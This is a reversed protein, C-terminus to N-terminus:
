SGGSPPALPSARTVAFSPSLVRAVGGLDQVLTTWSWPTAAQYLTTREAATLPRPFFAEPGIISNVGGYALAAYAAGWAAGPIDIRPTTIRTGGNISLGVSSPSWDCVTMFWTGLPHPTLDDVTRSPNTNQLMYFTVHGDSRLLAQAFDGNPYTSFQFLLPTTATAIPNVRKVWQVVSGQAPAPVSSFNAPGVTSLLRSSPSANAVGTWSYGSLLAGNADVEPCPSTVYALKEVQPRWLWTTYNNSPGIINTYIVLYGKAADPPTAYTMSIRQWGPTVVFDQQATTPSYATRTTGDAQIFTTYLRVTQSATCFVWVSATYTSSPVYPMTYADSFIGSVVSNSEEIRIVNGGGVDPPPVNPDITIVVGANLRNWDGSTPATFLPDFLYNTTAEEVLAAQTGTWLGPRYRVPGTATATIAGSADRGALSGNMSLFLSPVTM